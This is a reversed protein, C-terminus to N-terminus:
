EKLRHGMRKQWYFTIERVFSLQGHDYHSDAEIGTNTEAETDIKIETHIV